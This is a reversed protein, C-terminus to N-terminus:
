QRGRDSQQRHSGSFSVPACERCEPVMFTGTLRGQGPEEELIAKVYIKSGDCGADGAFSGPRSDGEATLSRQQIDGTLSTRLEDDFSLVLQTGSQSISLVPQKLLSSLKACNSEVAHGADAQLVWKGAVCTPAQLGRGLHLVGLIGALPLGALLSYTLVSKFNIERIM